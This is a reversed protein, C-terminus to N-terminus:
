IQWGSGWANFFMGYKVVSHIIVNGTWHLCLRREALISESRGEVIWVKHIHYAFISDIRRLTSDRLSVFRTSWGGCLAQSKRAIRTSGSAAIKLSPNGGGDKHLVGHKAPAGVFHYKTSAYERFQTILVIKLEPRMTTSLALSYWPSLSVWLCSLVWAILFVIKEDQSKAQSHSGATLSACACHFLTALGHANCCDCSKWLSDDQSLM